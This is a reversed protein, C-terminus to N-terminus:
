FDCTLFFHAAVLQHNGCVDEAATIALAQLSGFGDRRVLGPKVSEVQRRRVVNEQRSVADHHLDLGAPEGEVIAIRLRKHRTNEPGFGAVVSFGRLANIVRRALRTEDFQRPHACRLTRLVAYPFGFIPGGSPFRAGQLCTEMAPTTKVGAHPTMWRAERESAPPFSRYPAVLLGRGRAQRGSCSTLSVRRCVPIICPEM